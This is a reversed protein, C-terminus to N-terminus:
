RTGPFKGARLDRLGKRMRERESAPALQVAQDAALDGTRRDGSEYAMVALQQFSASDKRVAAVLLQVNIAQRPQNLGTKGYALVIMSAVAVDVKEPELALYRQWARDASRLYEIGARSYSNDVPDTYANAALYNAEVLEALAQASRPKATVAVEADAVRREQAARAAGTPATAASPEDESSGSGCGAVAFAVAALAALAVAPVRSTM